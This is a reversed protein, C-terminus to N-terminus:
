ANGLGLTRAYKEFTAGYLGTLNFAESYLLDGERAARIVTAAFKRGVRFDQNTYFDGGGDQNDARRREDHEYAEYFRFFEERRILRLDLARRAAVIASVKFTRAIAQFPEAENRVRPWLERLNEGPVLFEAAIRDCARELPVPAAQLQRLDFAASKGLLIHALEHAHTFMQAAKGDAGNAFVLPAYSDVLVFGRFEEPDLARSTNNGVIGNVVVLIGARETAERLRALAKTWTPVENAWGHQLGLIDRIRNAVVEPSSDVDAVGVFPLEAMGKKISYERM